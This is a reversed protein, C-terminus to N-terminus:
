GKAQTRCQVTGIAVPWISNTRIPIGGNLFGVNANINTTLKVDAVYDHSGCLEAARQHWFEIAKEVPTNANVLYALRFVGESIMEDTYGGTAGQKQYGTTVCSALTAASLLVVLIQKTPM